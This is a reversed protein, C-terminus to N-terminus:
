VWALIAEADEFFEEGDIIEFDDNEGTLCDGETGFSCDLGSGGQVHIGAQSCPTSFGVGDFTVPCGATASVNFWMGCGNFGAQAFLSTVCPPVCPDPNGGSICADPECTNIVLIASYTCTSVCGDMDCSEINSMIIGSSLAAAVQAVCHPWQAPWCASPTGPPTPAAPPTELFGDLAFFLSQPGESIDTCDSVCDGPPHTCAIEVVNSGSSQYECPLCLPQRNLWIGIMPTGGLTNECYDEGASGSLGTDVCTREEDDGVCCGCDPVEGCCCGIMLKTAAVIIRGVRNVARKM